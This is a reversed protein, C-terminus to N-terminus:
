EITITKTLLDVDMSTPTAYNKIITLEHNIKWGDRKTHIELLLADDVKKYQFIEKLQAMEYETLSDDDLFLAIDIVIDNIDVTIDNIGYEREYIIITYSIQATKIEEDIQATKSNISLYRYVNWLNIKDNKLTINYNMTM